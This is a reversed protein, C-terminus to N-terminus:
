LPLWYSIKVLFVDDSPADVIGQFDRRARFDGLDATEARNENWVVFLASGPRFEWRVVASGRVSRLNFDPNGFSFSQAGGPGDPDVTYLDTQDDFAITGRDVGYEAFNRTRGQTLEKFGEYDGTAVFPQLYLQFSLRSSFTWDVRTAIEVTRQEIGAFLYRSGYTNTAREDAQTRVYQAATFVEAYFPNLRLRLNSLPRYNLAFGGNHEHSGEDGGRNQQYIEFYMKKRSDSGFGVGADWADWRRLLPGGRTARDDFRDFVRGGWAFAYWYNAFQLYNDTYIGNALLDGATNWNQYKGTFLSRERFWKTSDTNLYHVVAHTNTIDSRVDFGLDNTEFGPSYSQAKLNYRWKGTQKAVVVRGGYGTLSTRAPDYEVHDADPRQYYHAAQRQTVGIAEPSGTVHSGGFFWEVLVDKKDNLYWYGDTGGTWATERLSSLESPLDRYVSTLLGGVRGRQGLDKAVRSVLYNTMPEVIQAGRELTRTGDPEQTETAFFAREKDTVADLVGLTWGSGTKGTVKAAGLIRSENPAGIYTAGLSSLGQPSRGIRRSYFFSPENINFAFNNNSGGQGFAFLSSGEVFFPRKEPFFLEFGSLDVVAPDVEVQGFDPNITGTLTLNSTLSYKLDLGLEQTFEQQDNYPDGTEVTTRLDSRAVTYPLVELSRKPEVGRLGVLNGFRSVLGTETKPTHVFRDVENRRQLARMFNVGWVHEARHPFRLQSYPIRMEVTWGDEVIKAASSWVADWDPDDWNDNYLVMDFQVNSPNVWFAAGSRRDLHPDLYVRFWDSELTSDRRGLLTTVPKSDFLRAAFYIADDDYVVKVTTKESSPKGEDPERQTFSTIEPAASWAPDDLKGDIVPATQVRVAQVEPRNDTTEAAFAGCCFLAILMGLISQRFGM